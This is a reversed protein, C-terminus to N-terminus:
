YTKSFFNNCNGCEECIWNEINTHTSTICFVEAGCKDCKGGNWNLWNAVINAMSNLLLLVIFIIAIIKTAITDM